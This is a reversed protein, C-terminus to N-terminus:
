ANRREQERHIREARANRKKKEPYNGGHKKEEREESLKIAVAQKPNTVKQGSSSRLKGAKFKHMVQSSPM